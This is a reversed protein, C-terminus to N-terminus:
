HQHCRKWEQPHLARYCHRYPNKYSVCEILWCSAELWMAKNIHFVMDFQIVASLYSFWIHPTAFFFFFCMLNEMESVNARSENELVTLVSWKIICYGHWLCGSGQEESTFSISTSISVMLLDWKLRFCLLFILQIVIYITTLQRSPFSCTARLRM